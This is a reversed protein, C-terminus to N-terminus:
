LDTKPLPLALLHGSYVFYIKMEKEDVWMSNSNFEMDSWHVLAKFTFSKTDYIGFQTNGRFDHTAVWFMNPNKTPQLPKRDQSQYLLPDFNGVVRELKGTGANFLFTIFSPAKQYGVWKRQRILFKNHAAIYAIVDFDYSLELDVPFEENTQLNIRVLNEWGTKQDEKATVLWHGDPSVVVDSTEYNGKRILIPKTSENVKVLACDTESVCPSLYEYGNATFRWNTDFYPIEAPAPVIEGLKGNVFKRWSYHAKEIEARRKLRKLRQEYDELGAPPMSNEFYKRAADFNDQWKSVDEVLVRFDNDKKWVARATWVNDALLLELNKVKNQIYYHNKFNGSERLGNFLDALKDMPEPPRYRLSFISIRLGGSRDISLFEYQLCMHTCYKYDRIPPQTELKVENLLNRLTDIEKSTLNRESYRVEDEYYTFVVRNKYVRVVQGFKPTIVFGYIEQLDSNEKIEACLKDEAEILKEPKGMDKILNGKVCNSTQASSNFAGLLIYLISSLLLRLMHNTKDTIMLSIVKTELSFM